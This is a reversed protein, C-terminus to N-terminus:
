SDHHNGFHLASLWRHQNSVTLFVLKGERQGAKCCGLSRQLGTIIRCGELIGQRQRLRSIRKRLIKTSRHASKRGKGSPGTGRCGKGAL